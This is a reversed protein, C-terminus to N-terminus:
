NKNVTPCGDFQHFVEWSFFSSNAPENLTTKIKNAIHSHSIAWKSFSNYGQDLTIRCGKRYKKTPCRLRSTYALQLFKTRSVLSLESFWTTNDLNRSPFNKGLTKVTSFHQNIVAWVPSPKKTPSFMAFKVRVTVKCTRNQACGLPTKGFFEIISQAGISARWVAVTKWLSSIICAM